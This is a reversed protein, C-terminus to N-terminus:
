LYGNSRNSKSGTSTIEALRDYTSKAVESGALTNIHPKFERPLMTNPNSTGIDYLYFSENHPPAIPKLDSIAGSRRM